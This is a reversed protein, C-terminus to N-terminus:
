PGRPRRARRSRATARSPPSTSTRRPSSAPSSRSAPSETVSKQTGELTVSLFMADSALTVTYEGSYVGNAVYDTNASVLESGDATLAVVSALDSATPANGHADLATVLITEAAGAAAADGAEAGAGVVEV